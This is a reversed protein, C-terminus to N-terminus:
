ALHNEEFIQIPILHYLRKVERFCFNASSPFNNVPTNNQVFHWFLPFNFFVEPLPKKFQKSAGFGM